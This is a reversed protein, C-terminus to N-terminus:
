GMHIRTANYAEEIIEFLSYPVTNDSHSYIIVKGILNDDYNETDHLESIYMSKDNRYYELYSRVANTPTNEDVKVPSMFVELFEHEHGTMVNYLMVLWRLETEIQDIDKNTECIFAESSSNSVFGIRFKM